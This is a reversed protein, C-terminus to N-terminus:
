VFIIGVSKCEHWPWVNGACAYQEYKNSTAYTGSIAFSVGPSTGVWINRDARFLESTGALIRDYLWQFSGSDAYSQVVLNTVQCTNTRNYRTWTNVRVGYVTYSVGASPNGASCTSLPAIANTTVSHKGKSKMLLEVLAADTQQNDTLIVYNVGSKGAVEALTSMRIRWITGDPCPRSNSQSNTWIVCDSQKTNDEIIAVKTNNQTSTIGNLDTKAHAPSVTIALFAAALVFLMSRCFKVM